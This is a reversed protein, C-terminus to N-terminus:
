RPGRVEHELEGLTAEAWHTLAAGRADPDPAGPLLQQLFGDDCRVPPAFRVTVTHGGSPLRAGIPMVEAMGHHYLGLAVPRTQELLKGIGGKFPRRLRAGAERTRGGEPFLHVWDGDRLRDRLFVMGPQSEGWGRVVPVCRGASFLVGRLADGFFNLADAAVWRVEGYDGPEVFNAVLLPDDFLSVHNSFTLLGRGGRASRTRVAELHELGTVELRNRRTMLWRSASVVARTITRTFATNRPHFRAVAAAARADEPSPAEAAM